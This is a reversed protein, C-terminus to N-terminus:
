GLVRPLQHSGMYSATLGATVPLGLNTRVAVTVM